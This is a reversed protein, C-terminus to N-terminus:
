RWGGYSGRRRYDFRVRPITLTIVGGEESRQLNAMDADRPLRIRQSFASSFRSFRYGGRDSRRQNQISRNGGILLTNGQLRLQVADAGSNGSDIRLYYASPTTQRQVRIRYGIREGPYQWPVPAAREPMRDSDPAPWERSQAAAPMAGALLLSISLTIITRKM